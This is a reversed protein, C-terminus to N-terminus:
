CAPYGGISGTPSCLRVNGLAGVTVRMKFGRESEFDVTASVATGRVPDFTTLTTNTAMPSTLRINSFEGSDRVKLVNTGAMSVACVDAASLNTETCDCAGNEDIGYCWGTSGNSTLSVSLGTSQKIAESRAFQIDSYLAEAAAKITNKENIQRMAPLGASLLIAVGLVAMLLEVM